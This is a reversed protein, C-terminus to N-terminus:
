EGTSSVIREFVADIGEDRVGYELIELLAEGYETRERVHAVLERPTLLAQHELFGIMPRNPAQEAWSSLADLIRDHELASLM